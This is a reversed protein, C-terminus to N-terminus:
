ESWPRWRDAGLSISRDLTSRAVGHRAISDIEAIIRDIHDAEAGHFEEEEFLVFRGCELGFSWDYNAYLIVRAGRRNRPTFEVITFHQQDREPILEVTVTPHLAVVGHTVAEALRASGREGDM